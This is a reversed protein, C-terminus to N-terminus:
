IDPLAVFISAVSLAITATVLYAAFTGVTIAARRRLRVVDRGTVLQEQRWARRSLVIIGLALTLPWFLIAVWGVAAEKVLRRV